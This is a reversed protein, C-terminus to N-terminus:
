ETGPVHQVTSCRIHPLLHAMAWLLHYTKDSGPKTQRNTQQVEHKLIERLLKHLLSSALDVDTVFKM